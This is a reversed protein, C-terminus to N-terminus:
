PGAVPRQARTLAAALDALSAYRNAPEIELCHGVIRDWRPHLDPM